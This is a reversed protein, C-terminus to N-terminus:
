MQFKKLVARPNEGRNAASGMAGTCFGFCLLIFYFPSFLHKFFLLQDQNCLAFKKLMRPRYIEIEPLDYIKWPHHWASHWLASFTFIQSM